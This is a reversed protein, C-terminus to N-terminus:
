ARSFVLLGCMLVLSGPLNPPISRLIGDAEIMAGLGGGPRTFQVVVM